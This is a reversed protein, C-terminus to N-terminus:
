FFYDNVSRDEFRVSNKIDRTSRNTVEESLLERITDKLMGKIDLGKARLSSGPLLKGIGSALGADEGIYEILYAEYDNMVYEGIVEDVTALRDCLNLRLADEGFWTEGTAVMDIREQLIPRNESVFSRFLNYVAELDEKSKELDAKETEKFPTLTRKYKGATVTNFKIGEKKLREYVNPQESIVGISGLVSFPSAILNGADALCAMMYGGSAAVQEVCISLPIGAAKLRLLQSAALGYGTVTGGGTQLTLLVHPNVTSDSDAHNLLIATVEERLFEVQSASVDGNFNLVYLTKKESVDPSISEFLFSLPRQSPNSLYASSTLM